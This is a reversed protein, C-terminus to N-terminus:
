PFFSKTKFITPLYAFGPTYHPRYNAQARTLPRHEPGPVWGSLAAYISARIAKADEAAGSGGLTDSANRIALVVIFRQDELVKKGNPVQDVVDEGDYIVFVAPVVQSQEVVSALDWAPLVRKLAPVQDKIRDCIPQWVTLADAM